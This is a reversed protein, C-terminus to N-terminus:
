CFDSSGTSVQRRREGDRVRNELEDGLKDAVPIVRPGRSVEGPVVHGRRIPRSADRVQEPLVQRDHGAHDFTMTSQKSGVARWEVMEVHYDFTQERWHCPALEAIQDFERQGDQDPLAGVQCM